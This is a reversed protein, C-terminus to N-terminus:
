SLAGGGFTGDSSEVEGVASTLLPLVERWAVRATQFAREGKPTLEYVRRKREKVTEPIVTAYGGAVLAKLVPYIGGFSPTCCGATSQEVRALIAYGHCPEQHLTQLILFKTLSMNILAKWYGADELEM